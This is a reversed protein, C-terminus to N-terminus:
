DWIYARRSRFFTFPEGTEIDPEDSDEVRESAKVMAM